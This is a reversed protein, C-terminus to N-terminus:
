DSSRDNDVSALGSVEGFSQAVEGLGIRDVGCPEGVEALDDGCDDARQGCRFDLFELLNVVTTALEDAHQGGLLVVPM